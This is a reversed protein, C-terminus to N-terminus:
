EGSIISKLKSEEMGYATDVTVKGSLIDQKAEEVKKQVDEPVEKKYIDNEAIGVVGDKLGLVEAEGFALKDEAAKEVSLYLSEGVNKIASSIIFEQEPKGAYVDCNSCFIRTSDLYRPRAEDKSPARSKLGRLGCIVRPSNFPAKIAIWFIRQQQPIWM